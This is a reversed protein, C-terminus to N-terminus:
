ICLLIRLYEDLVCCDVRDIQEVCRDSKSGHARAAKKSARVDSASLGVDRVVDIAAPGFIKWAGCALITNREDHSSYVGHLLDRMSWWVHPGEVKSLTVIWCRLMQYRWGIMFAQTRGGVNLLLAQSGHVLQCFLSVDRFCFAVFEDIVSPWGIFFFDYVPAM